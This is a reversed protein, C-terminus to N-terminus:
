DNPENDSVGVLVLAESNLYYFIGLLIQIGKHGLM